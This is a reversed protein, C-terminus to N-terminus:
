VDAKAKAKAEPLKIGSEFLDVDPDPLIFDVAAFVPDRLNAFNNLVFNNLRHPPIMPAGCGTLSEGKYNTGEKLFRYFVDALEHLLQGRAEGRLNQYRKYGLPTKTGPLLRYLYDKFNISIAETVPYIHDPNHNMTRIYMSFLYSDSFLRTFEGLGGQPDQHAAHVRSLHARPTRAQIHARAHYEKTHQGRQDTASREAKRAKHACFAEYGEVFETIERLNSFRMVFEYKVTDTCDAM